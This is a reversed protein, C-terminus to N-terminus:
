VLPILPQQPTIQGLSPSSALIAESLQSFHEKEIDPFLPESDVCVQSRKFSFRGFYPPAPPPTPPLPGLHTLRIDEHRLLHHLAQEPLVPVQNLGSRGADEARGQGRM